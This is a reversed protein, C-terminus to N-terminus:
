RSRGHQKWTMVARELVEGIKPDPMNVKYEGRQRYIPGQLGPYSSIKDEFLWISEVRSGKSGLFMRLYSLPLERRAIISVFQELTGGRVYIRFHNEHFACRFRLGDLKVQPGTYKQVMPNVVSRQDTDQSPSLFLHRQLTPSGSIVNRCTTSTRQCHLLTLHDKRLQDPFFCPEYDYKLDIRESPYSSVNILIQELLEPTNLVRWCATTTAMETTQFALHRRHNLHSTTSKPIDSLFDSFDPFGSMAEKWTPLEELFTHWNELVDDVLTGMRHDALNVVRLPFKRKVMDRHVGAVEETTLHVWEVGRGIYMRRWSAERTAAMMLPPDAPWSTSRISIFACSGVLRLQFSSSASLNISGSPSGRAFFPNPLEVGFKSPSLYLQEQLKTSSVITDKFATCVRQSCLLTRRLKFNDELANLYDEEPCDLSLDSETALLIIQELLEPTHMVRWCASATAM